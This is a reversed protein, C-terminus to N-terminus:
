EGKRSTKSQIYIKNSEQQFLLQVSQPQPSLKKPGDNAGLVNTHEPVLHSPFFTPHIEKGAPSGAELSLEM